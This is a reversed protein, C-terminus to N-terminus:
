LGLRLNGVITRPLPLASNGTELDLGSYNTITWLNQGQFGLSVQRLGVRKLWKEPLEWNIAVTNIRLYTADEFGTDTNSINVGNEVKGYKNLAAIDGPNRWRPISTFPVNGIYYGQSASQYNSIYSRGNQRLLNAQIDLSIGKWSFRNGIGGYFRPSLDVFANDDEFVTNTVPNGNFDAKRLNGTLPDVGKLSGVLAGNISQGVILNDVILSNSGAGLSLLVNRARTFNVSTNWKFNGSVINRSNLSFELNTNRVLGPFNIYITQSVAASGPLSTNMLLNDSKNVSYNFNLALRDKLFGLDLGFNLKRTREWQLNSNYNTYQSLGILGQYPIDSIASSYLDLFTYDGIQDNGTVGYSLRLKGFSLGALHNKMWDRETFIWGIGFAGFNDFRNAPGFRSSGDRRVTLNLLFEDGHNLTMRSFLGNYRYINSISGVPRITTFSSTVELLDDSVNDFATLGNGIASSYQISGGLLWDLKLKGFINSYNLQPDINFNVNSSSSYEAKRSSPMQDVPAFSRLPYSRFAEMQMRSYGFISSLKLGKILEYGLELSSTLNNVKATNTEELVALPNSWTHNGNADLAWNLSGDENYFTPANPAMTLLDSTINASPLLNQDVMGNISIDMSFRRNASVTNLNLGLSAKQDNNRGGYISNQRIYGLNVRYNTMGNGGSASAELDHYTVGKGFFYDQIDNNVKDGWFGNLDYDSDYIPENSNRKAEMRMARYQELNMYNLQRAMETYGSRLNADIKVPGAKGKKTTIIIAGNAARSGYIATADADKLVEISEIDSANIYNLPSGGTRSEGLFEKGSNQQWVSNVSMNAQVMSNNFPVGDVVYFPQSGGNISNMGQIRVTVRDGAIGSAPTVVLGPVRGQLALLPNSVPQKEIEDARVSAINSTSLRKSTKGYAQIQVADLENTAMKLRIPGMERLAPFERADYGIYKVLLISGEEVGGLVFTGDAKTSVGKGTAKVAVSAGGIPQGTEDVVKGSVDITAFYASVRDVVSDLFSSEEKGKVIVTKSNIEFAFPQGKFVETLVLNLETNEVKITVPKFEALLREKYVFDFGTQSRLEKIITRLSANTKNISVKQAKTAAALQMLSAILIVTTLRM